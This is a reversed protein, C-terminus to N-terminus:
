RSDDKPHLDPDYGTASAGPKGKGTLVWEPIIPLPMGERWHVGGRRQCIDNTGVILVRQMAEDFEVLPQKLHEERRRQEEPDPPQYGEERVTYGRPHDVDWSGFAHFTFHYVAVSTM